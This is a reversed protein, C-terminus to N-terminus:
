NYPLSSFLFLKKKRRLLLIMMLQYTSSLFEEEPKLAGQAHPDVHGGNRKMSCGLFICIGLIDHSGRGGRKWCASSLSSVFRITTNSVGIMSWSMIRM